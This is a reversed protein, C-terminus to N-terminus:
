FEAEGGPDRYLRMTGDALLEYERWCGTCIAFWVGRDSDLHALNGGCGDCEWFKFGEKRKEIEQETIQAIRQLDPPDASM